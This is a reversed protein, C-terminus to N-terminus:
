SKDEVVAIVAHPRSPHPRTLAAEIADDSVTSSAADATFDPTKTDLSGLTNQITINAPDLLWAGGKGKKGGSALEYCREDELDAVELDEALFYMM